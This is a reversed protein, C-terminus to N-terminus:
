RTLRGARLLRQAIVVRRPPNEDLFTAESRLKTIADQPEDHLQALLTQSWLDFRRRNWASIVEFAILSPIVYGGWIVIMAGIFVNEIM